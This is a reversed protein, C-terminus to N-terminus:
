RILSQLFIKYEKEANNFRDVSGNFFGSSLVTNRENRVDDIFRHVITDKNHYYIGSESYLWFRRGYPAFKISPKNILRIHMNLLGVFYEYLDFYEAFVDENTFCKQIKEKLIKYIRNNPILKNNIRESHQSSVYEEFYNLVTDVVNDIHNFVFYCNFKEILNANKELIQNGDYYRIKVIKNNLKFLSNYDNQKILIIGLVYLCILTPYDSIHRWIYGFRDLENRKRYLIKDFLEEIIDFNLYNKHRTLISIIEIYIDIDKEYENIILRFNEINPREKIKLYKENTLIHVISDSFEILEDQLLIHKSIDPLYTKVKNIIGNRVIDVTNSNNSTDENTLNIRPRAILPQDLLLKKLEDIRTKYESDNRMDHYMFGKLYTPISVNEDGERLVPIYKINNVPLNKALDTNIISYEYGVGKERKDAKLAYNPTMIILVKDSEKIKDEVYKNIINGATLDYQDFFVFFSASLDNALKLVWNEHEKGDWSYSIFVKIKM